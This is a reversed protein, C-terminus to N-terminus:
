TRLTSEGRKSPDVNDQVLVCKGFNGHPLAYKIDAHTLSCKICEYNPIADFICDLMNHKLTSLQVQLVPQHDEFYSSEFHIIGMHICREEYVHLRRCLM